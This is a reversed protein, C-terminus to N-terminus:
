KKEVMIRYVNFYKECMVSIDFDQVFNFGTQAFERIKNRNNYMYEIKDALDNHNESEFLLGNHGDKIMENSGSINSAIVPLGAALGELLSLPLGEVRSPFIFLNYNKLIDPINENVGCFSVSEELNNEQRLKSLIDYSEQNLIGGFIDCKFKVSREKCVALAKILVDQGKKPLWLWAVNVIKLFESDADINNPQGDFKKVDICNYIHKVNQVKFDNFESLIGKSIAVNVDVLTKLFFISITGMTSIINTDHCTHVLKLEPLFIKCLSMWKVSGRDHCHVVDIRNDKLIKILKFLTFFNKSKADSIKYVDVGLSKIEYIRNEHATDADFIILSHKINHSSNTYKLISAIFKEVGGTRFSFRSHLINIIKKSDNM